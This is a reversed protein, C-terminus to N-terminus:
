FFFVDFPSDLIASILYSYFSSYFHRKRKIVTKIIWADICRIHRWCCHSLLDNMQCIGIHLVPLRWEDLVGLQFSAMMEPTRLSVGLMRVNRKYMWVLLCADPMDGSAEAQRFLRPPIPPGCGESQWDSVLPTYPPNPVRAYCPIGIATQRGPLRLSRPLRHM